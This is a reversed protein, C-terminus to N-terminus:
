PISRFWDRVVDRWHQTASQDRSSGAHKESPVRGTMSPPFGTRENLAMEPPTSYLAKLWGREIEVPDQCIDLEVWHAPGEPDRRRRATM